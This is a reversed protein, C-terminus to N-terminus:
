WETNLTFFTCHGYTGEDNTSRCHPVQLTTHLHTYVCVCGGHQICMCMYMCGEMLIWACVHMGDELYSMCLGMLSEVNQPDLLDDTKVAVVSYLM